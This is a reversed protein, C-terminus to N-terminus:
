AALLYNQFVSFIKAFLVPCPLDAQDPEVFEIKRAFGTLQLIAPTHGSPAHECYDTPIPPALPGRSHV